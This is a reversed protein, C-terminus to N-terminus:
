LSRTRCFRSRSCVPRTLSRNSFRISSRHSFNMTQFFLSVRDELFDEPRQEFLDVGLLDAPLDFLKLGFGRIELRDVMRAPQDTACCNSARSSSCDSAKGAANKGDTREAGIQR